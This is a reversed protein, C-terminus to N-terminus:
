ELTVDCNISTDCCNNNYFECEKKNFQYISMLEFGIDEDYETGDHTHYECSNYTCAYVLRYYQIDTPYNIEFRKLSICGVDEKNFENLKELAEKFMEYFHKVNLNGLCEGYYGYSDISSMTTIGTDHIEIEEGCEENGVYRKVIFETIFDFKGKIELLM